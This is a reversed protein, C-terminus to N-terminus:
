DYIRCCWNVLSLLLLLGAADDLFTIEGDSAIALLRIRAMKKATNSTCSIRALSGIHIEFLAVRLRHATM